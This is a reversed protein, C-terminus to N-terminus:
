PLIEKITIIVKGEKGPDLGCYTSHTRPVYQMSDDELKGFEVLADLFFKECISTWNGLDSRQRTKPYYDFWLEIQGFMPLQHIQPALLEKFLRKAQNSVLYHLNRYTNMSLSIRKDKMTKRPLYIVIPAKVSYNEQKM